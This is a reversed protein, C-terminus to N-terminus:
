NVTQSIHGSAAQWPTFPPVSGTSGAANSWNDWTGTLVYAVTYGIQWTGGGHLQGGPLPISWQASTNGGITAKHTLTNCTSTPDSMYIDSEWRLSHPATGTGLYYLTNTAAVAPRAALYLPALVAILTCIMGRKM